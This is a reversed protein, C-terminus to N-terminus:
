PPPGTPAGYRYWRSSGAFSSPGAVAVHRAVLLADRQDAVRAVVDVEEDFWSCTANM